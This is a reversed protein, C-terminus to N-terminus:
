PPALSDEWRLNVHTLRRTGMRGADRRASGAAERVGERWRRDHWRLAAASLSPVHDRKLHNFWRLARWSHRASWLEWQRALTGAMRSRRRQWTDADEDLLRPVDSVSLIVRRQAADLFRGTAESVPWRSMRFDLLPVAFANIHRRRQRDDLVRRALGSSNRLTASLVSAKWAKLDEAVSGDNSVVVGLCQMHQKFQWEPWAQVLDPLAEWEPAGACVLVEKSGDKIQLRWDNALVRELEAAVMLSGGVSHSFTFLNDVFSAGSWGRATGLHYSWNRVAPSIKCMSSEVPIRGMAGASRSGTLGGKTRHRIVVTAISADIIVSPLLQWRLVAAAIDRGCRPVEASVVWKAVLLLDLNDYYARVDMSAWAGRSFDDMSKEVMQSIAFSIDLPQTGAVAGVFWGSSDITAAALGVRAALLSDLLQARATLPIIVRIDDPKPTKSKKGFARARFSTAVAMEDSVAMEGFFRLVVDPAAMFLFQWMAVCEGESDLVFKRTVSDLAAQFEKWTWHIPRRPSVALFDRLQERRHLSRCSWRSEFVGGVADGVEGEDVSLRRAEDAAAM